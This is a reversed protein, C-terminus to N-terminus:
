AAPEEPLEVRVAFEAGEETDLRAISGAGRVDAEVRALAALRDATDVVHV